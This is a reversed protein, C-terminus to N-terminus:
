RKKEINYYWYEDLKIATNPLYKIDFKNINSVYYVFANDTLKFIIIGYFPEGQVELVNTYPYQKPLQINNFDVKVKHTFGELIKPLDQENIFNYEQKLLSKCDEDCRKLADIRKEPAYNLELVPIKIYGRKVTDYIGVFYFKIQYKNIDSSFEMNRVEISLKSLNNLSNNKNLEYFEQCLKLDDIKITTCRWLFLISFFIIALYKIEEKKM